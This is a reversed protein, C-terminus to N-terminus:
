SIIGLSVQELKLAEATEAAKLAEAAACQSEEYSPPWDARRDVSPMGQVPDDISEAMGKQVLALHWSTRWHPYALTASVNDLTVRLFSVYQSFSKKSCALALCM